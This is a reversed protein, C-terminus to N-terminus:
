CSRIVGYFAHDQHPAALLRLGHQLADLLLGFFDVLADQRGIDLHPREVIAAVQHPEGGVGDFRVQQAAHHQHQDHQNEEQDAQARSKDDRQRNRQRQEECKNEQVRVVHRGIKSEMPAISKPITISPVSTITSFM